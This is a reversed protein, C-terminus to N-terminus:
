QGEEPGAGLVALPRYVPRDSDGDLWFVVGGDELQGLVGDLLRDGPAAVFGEGSPSELIARGSSETGEMVGAPIRYRVIGRIVTEMVAVGALGPPRLADPGAEPERFPDRGREERGSQVASLYPRGGERGEGVVPLGALLLILGGRTLLRHAFHRSCRSRHPARSVLRTLSSYRTYKSRFAVSLAAFRRPEAPICRRDFAMQTEGYATLLARMLM